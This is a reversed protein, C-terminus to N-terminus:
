AKIDNESLRNSEMMEQAFSARFETLKESVDNAQTLKGIQFQLEIVTQYKLAPHFGMHAHRELIFNDAILLGGTFTQIFDLNRYSFDFLSERNINESAGKGNIALPKTAATEEGQQQNIHLNQLVLMGNRIEYECSYGRWCSTIMMEPLMGHKAPEFLPADSVGALAYLRVNYFVRDPVQATM